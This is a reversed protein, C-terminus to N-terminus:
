SNPDFIISREWIQFLPIVYEVDFPVIGTTSPSLVFILLFYHLSILLRRLEIDPKTDYKLLSANHYSGDFVKLYVRFEVGWFELVLWRIFSIAENCDGCDVHYVDLRILGQMPDSEFLVLLIQFRLRLDLIIRVPEAGVEDDIVAFRPALLFELLHPDPIYEHAVKAQACSAFCDADVPIPLSPVRGVLWQQDEALDSHVLLLLRDEAGVVLKIDDRRLLLEGLQERVVGLHRVPGDAGYADDSLAIDHFNSKLLSLM